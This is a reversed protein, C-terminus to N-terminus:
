DTLQADLITFLAKNIWSGEKDIFSISALKKVEEESLKKEWKVREESKAGPGQSKYESLTM